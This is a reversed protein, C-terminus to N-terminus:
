LLRSLYKEFNVGHNRPINEKSAEEIAEQLFYTAKEVAEQISLGKVCSACIVSAFLDGTGSFGM